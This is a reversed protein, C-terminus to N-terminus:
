KSDKVMSSMMVYSLVTFAGCTIFVARYTASNSTSTKSMWQFARLGLSM